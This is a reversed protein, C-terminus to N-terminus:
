CQNRTLLGGKVTLPLNHLDYIRRSATGVLAATLSAIM